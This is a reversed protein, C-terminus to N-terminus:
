ATNVKTMTIVPKVSRDAAHLQELGVAREAFIQFKEGHWKRM